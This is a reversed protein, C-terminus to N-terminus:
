AHPKAFTTLSNVTVIGTMGTTIAHEWIWEGPHEESHGTYSRAGIWWQDEYHPGELPNQPVDSKSYYIDLLTDVIWGNDVHHWDTDDIETLWGGKGKCIAQADAHNVRTDEDAFYYCHCREPGDGTHMKHMRWGQYCTQEALSYAITLSLILFLTKMKIIIYLLLSHSVPGM